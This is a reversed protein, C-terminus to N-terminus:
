GGGKTLFHMVIGVLAGGIGFGFLLVQIPNVKRFWQRKRWKGYWSFPDEGDPVEIVTIFFSELLSSLM